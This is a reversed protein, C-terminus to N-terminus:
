GRIIGMFTMATNFVFNIILYTWNWVEGVLYSVIQLDGVALEFYGRGGKSTRDDLSILWFVILFIPLVPLWQSFGFYVWMDGVGTVLVSTGDFIDGIETFVNIFTATFQTVWFIISGSAFIVLTMVQTILSVVSTVSTFFYTTFGTLVGAFAAFIGTGGTVYDLGDIIWQAIIFAPQTSIYTIDGDPAVGDVYPAVMDLYVHYGTTKVVASSTVAASFFGNVIAADTGRTADEDDVINVATFEANPPYVASSTLGATTTCYRVNGSINIMTSITPATDNSGLLYTTLRNITDFYDTQLVTYGVNNGAADYAKVELEISDENVANWPLKVKMTLTAVNGVQTFTCSASDVIADIPQAHIFDYVPVTDLNDGDVGWRTVGGQSAKILIHHTVPDSVVAVFTYYSSKMTYLNNGDDLDTIAVSTLTPTAQAFQIPQAYGALFMLLIILTLPVYGAKM